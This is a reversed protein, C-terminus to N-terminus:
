PDIIVRTGPRCMAYLRAANWNALRFCGHSEANGVTSPSPTGHIGYGTLSGDRTNIGLWAVGVPNNPGEPLISREPKEGAPVFDPTYTYNPHAIYATVELAGKPPRKAQNRAISCPFCALLKRNVDYVSVECRSLSIRVEDALPRKPADEKSRDGAALEEEIPPFDPIVLKQGPRIHAWDVGPNLRRLLKPSVHGREAFMEEITEYGLQPLCAKEAPKSPITVLADLDARTVTEIRFGEGIDAFYRDYAQAPTLFVRLKPDREALFRRLARESKRGWVGDIVNCSFGARDLQIQLALPKSEAFSMAAFLAFAALM